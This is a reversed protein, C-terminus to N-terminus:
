YNCAVHLIELAEANLEEIGEIAEGPFDMSPFLSRADADQGDLAVEGAMRLREGLGACSRDFHALGLLKGAQVAEHQGAAFGGGHEFEEFLCLKKSVKCFNQPGFGMKPVQAPVIRSARSTRL